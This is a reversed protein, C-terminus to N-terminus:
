IQGHLVKGPRRLLLRRNQEREVVPLGNRVRVGGGERESM